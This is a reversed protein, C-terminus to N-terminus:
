PTILEPGGGPATSLSLVGRTRTKRWRQLAGTTLPTDWHYFAELTAPHAGVRRAFVHFDRIHGTDSVGHFIKHHPPVFSSAAASSPLLLLPAAVAAIGVRRMTTWSVCQVVQPVRM